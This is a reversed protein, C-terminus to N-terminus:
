EKAAKLMAEYLDLSSQPVVRLGNAECIQKAQDLEVAIGHQQIREPLTPSIAQKFGVKIMEAGYANLANVIEAQTVKM